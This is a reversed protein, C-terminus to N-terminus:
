APLTTTTTIIPTTPCQQEGGTRLCCTAGPQGVPHKCEDYIHTYTESPSNTCAWRIETMADTTDCCYFGNAFGGRYAPGRCWYGDNRLGGPVVTLNCPDALSKQQLSGADAKVM